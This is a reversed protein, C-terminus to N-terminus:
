DVRILVARVMRRYTYQKQLNDYGECTLLTVWSLTEHQFATNASTPSILENERVQYVYVQGWAHIKILDAYRLTNLKFFPGPTNDANWVHGTLVSNGVWTPFATDNLWGARQGLWTIDWNDNSQPVGVIPLSVNISPIELRLDSYALYAKDM